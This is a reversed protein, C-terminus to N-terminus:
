KSGKIRIVKNDLDEVALSNIPVLLGTGRDRVCPKIDDIHGMIAHESLVKYICKLEEAFDGADWACISSLRRIVAAERATLELVIQKDRKM